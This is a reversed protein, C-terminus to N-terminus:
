ITGGNAKRRPCWSPATAYTWYSLNNHLAGCWREAVGGPLWNIVHQQCRQCEIFPDTGRLHKRLWYTIEKKSTRSM